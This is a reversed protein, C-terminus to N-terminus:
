KHRGITGSTALRSGGRNQNAWASAYCQVERYRPGRHLAVLRDHRSDSLRATVRHRQLFDGHQNAPLPDLARRALHKLDFIWGVAPRDGLDRAAAALTDRTRPIGRSLCKGGPRAHDRTLASPKERSDCIRELQPDLLERARYRELSPVREAGLRAGLCLRGDVNEAVETAQAAFEFALRDGQTLMDEAVRPALWEAHDAADNRPICR